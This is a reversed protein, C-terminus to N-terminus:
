RFLYKSVTAEVETRRGGGGGGGGGGQSGCSTLKISKNKDTRRESGTM